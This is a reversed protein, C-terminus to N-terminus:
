DKLFRHLKERAETTSESYSPRFGQAEVDDVIDDFQKHSQGRIEALATELRLLEQERDNERVVWAASWRILGERDDGGDMDLLYDLQRRYTM